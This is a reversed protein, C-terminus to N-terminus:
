FWNTNLNKWADNKRMRKLCENLVGFRQKIESVHLVAFICTSGSFFWSYFFNFTYVIFESTSLARFLSTHIAYNTATLLIWLMVYIYMKRQLSKHDTHMIDEFARECNIMTTSFQLFKKKKIIAHISAAVFQLTSGIILFVQSSLPTKMLIVLMIKMEIGRLVLHIVILLVTYISLLHSTCLKDDKFCYPVLGMFSLFIIFPKIATYFNRKM